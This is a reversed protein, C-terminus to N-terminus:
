ASSVMTIDASTAAGMTMLTTATMANKGKPRSIPEMKASIWRALRGGMGMRAASSGKM